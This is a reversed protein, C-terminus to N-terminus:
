LALHGAGITQIGLGGKESRKNMVVRAVARARERVTTHVVTRVTVRAVERLAMRVAKEVAVRAVQGAITRVTTMVARTARAVLWVAVRM